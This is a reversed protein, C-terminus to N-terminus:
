GQNRDGLEARLVAIETVAYGVYAAHTAAIEEALDVVEPHDVPLGELLALAHEAQLHRLDELLEDQLTISSM